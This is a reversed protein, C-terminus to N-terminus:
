AYIINLFLSRFYFYSDRSYRSNMTEHRKNGFSAYDVKCNDSITAYRDLDLDSHKHKMFTIQKGWVNSMCWCRRAFYIFVSIHSYVICRYM